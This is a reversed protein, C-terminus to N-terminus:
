LQNYILREYVKWALPLIIIPGLRYNSKDLPEDIKYIPNLNAIKLSALLCETEISKNIYNILIEFPM